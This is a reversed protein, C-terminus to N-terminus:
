NGYTVEKIGGNRAAKAISADALAVDLRAWWWPNPVNLYVTSARGTKTGVPTEHFSTTLPAKYWTVLLGSPPAVPTRATGCGAM